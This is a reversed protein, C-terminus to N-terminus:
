IKGTLGDVCEKKTWGISLKKDTNTDIAVWDGLLPRVVIHEHGKVVWWAESNGFGNGNWGATNLKKLKVM